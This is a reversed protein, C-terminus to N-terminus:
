NLQRFKMTLDGKPLFHFTDSWLFRNSDSKVIMLTLSVSNYRCCWLLRRKFNGSISLRIWLISQFHLFGLDIWSQFTPLDFSKLNICIVEFIDFFILKHAAEMAKSRDSVGSLSREASFIFNLSKIQSKKWFIM